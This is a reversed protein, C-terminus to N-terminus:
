KFDIEFHSGNAGAWGSIQGLPGTFLSGFQKQMGQGYRQIGADALAKADGSLVIPGQAGPVQAVPLAVIQGAHAQDSGFVLSRGLVGFWITKGGDTYKYLGGAPEIDVNFDKAGKAIKALTAKLAAPDKVDSRVAWGDFGIAAYTNGSLQDVVDKDIDIGLKAGIAAKGTEFTGYQQPAIAKLTKEYFRITTAVDRWGIGLEDKARVVGPSQDGQALAGQVGGMQKADFSVKNSEVNLTAGSPGANGILSKLAAANPLAGLLASPNVYFRAIPDSPLGAFAKQFNDYTLHDNGDHRELAAELLPRSTAALATSGDIAFWDDDGSGRYVTAGSAKGVQKAHGKKTLLSKLKGADSTSWAAILPTQSSGNSAALERADPFALLVDGGLLPKIDKEYSLGEKQFEQKLKGKVEGAVPFKNLIKDLNKYQDSDPDAKATVVLPSNAPVYAVLDDLGKASGSGNGGSGCGAILAAVLAVLLLASLRARSV